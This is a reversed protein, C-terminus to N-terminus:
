PDFPFGGQPPIPYTPGWCKMAYGGRFTETVNYAGSSDFTPNDCFRVCQSLVADLKIDTVELEPQGLGDPEDSRVRVAGERQVGDDGGGAHDPVRARHSVSLGWFLGLGYRPQPFTSQVQPLTIIPLPTDPAPDVRFVVFNRPDITGADLDITSPQCFSFADGPAATIAENNFFSAVGFEGVDLNQSIPTLEPAKVTLRTTMGAQGESYKNIFTLYQERSPLIPLFNFRFPGLMVDPNDTIVPCSRLSNSPIQELDNDPLNLQLKAPCWLALRTVTSSGITHPFTDYVLAGVLRPTTKDREPPLVTELASELVAAVKGSADNHHLALTLVMDRQQMRMVDVRARFKAALTADFGPQLIDDICIVPATELQLRQIQMKLHAESPETNCTKLLFGVPLDERIPSHLKPFAPRAEPNKRALANGEFTGRADTVISRACLGPLTTATLPLTEAAFKAREQTEVPEWGLPLLGAECGGDLAYGYPNDMPAPVEGAQPELVRLDRRLGLEQVEENRLTPFQHRARWQVRTNTEDFVGYAVLSRQTHPAGSGVVNFVVPANLFLQGDRHYRLRLKVERPLKEVKISWSGCRGKETCDVGLHTHVAPLSQLVVWDQRVDDTVYSVEIQSLDGLGQEANMRYFFFLTQEDEFWTADALTFGANIDRIPVKCAGLALLGLGILLTRKM